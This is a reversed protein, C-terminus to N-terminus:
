PRWLVGRAHRESVLKALASPDSRGGPLWRADNREQREGALADIQTWLDHLDPEDPEDPDEHRRDFGALLRKLEDSM